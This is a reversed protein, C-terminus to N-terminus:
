QDPGSVTLTLSHSLMRNSDDKTCIAGEADCNTTEPLTITVPGNSDPKVTTTWTQNSGQVKRQANDIKGGNVNFAHNILTLYSLRVNESFALDFTFTIGSGSHSTPVNTFTATLSIPKAAVTETPVSTLAEQNNRDDTFTVRIQITKGQESSTLPYSSSTAGSIESGDALWQYEYSVGTLGDADDIPSTDATLTQDM